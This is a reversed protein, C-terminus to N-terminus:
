ADGCVAERKIDSGYDQVGLHRVQVAKMGALRKAVLNRHCHKPDREYCLLVTPKETARDAALELAEVTEQQSLHAEFIRRFEEMRGARAADRGPKPDGLQKCHEYSLGAEDLAASLAKKSFGRRRSQPLERIDLVHQVGAQILTAVFNELAAGEYGITFVTTM